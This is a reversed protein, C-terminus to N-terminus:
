DFWTNGMNSGYKIADSYQFFVFTVYLIEPEAFRSDHLGLIEWIVEMNQLLMICFVLSSFVHLM